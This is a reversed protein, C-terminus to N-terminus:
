WFRFRIYVGQRIHWGNSHCKDRSFLTDYAYSANVGLSRRTCRAYYPVLQNHLLFQKEGMCAEWFLHAWTIQLNALFIFECIIQISSIFFTFHLGSRLITHQAPWKWSHFDCSLVLKVVFYYNRAIIWYVRYYNVRNWNATPGGDRSPPGVDFWCRTSTECISQPELRNLRTVPFIM